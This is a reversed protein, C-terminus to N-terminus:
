RKGGNIQRARDIIDRCVSAREGTAIMLHRLADLKRDGYYAVSRAFQKALRNVKAKHKRASLEKEIQNRLSM